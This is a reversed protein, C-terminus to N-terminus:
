WQLNQIKMQEPLNAFRPILLFASVSRLLSIINYGQWGVHQSAWSWIARIAKILFVVTGCIMMMEVSDDSVM